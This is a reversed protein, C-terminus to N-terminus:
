ILWPLINHYLYFNDKNTCTTPLFLFLVLQFLNSYPYHCWLLLLVYSSCLSFCVLMFNFNFYCSCTEFCNHSIHWNWFLWLLTLHNPDFNDKTSWLKSFVVTPEFENEINEDISNMKHSFFEIMSACLLMQFLQLELM